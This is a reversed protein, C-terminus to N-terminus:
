DSEAGDAGGLLFTAHRGYGKLDVHGRPTLAFRAPLQDATAGACHVLGPVGSTELRAALNVTTGWVDYQVVRKDLVGAVVPGSHLGVRVKLPMGAPTQVRAAAGIIDLALDAAASAHDRRSVPVGAVALYGDGMTHIPQVGRERALDDFTAFLDSLMRVLDMPSYEESWRSFGVLDAFLVTVAEHRDALLGRNRRLRSAVADPLLASLLEDSRRREQELDDLLQAKRVSLSVRDALRRFTAVHGAHYANLEMSSFFLFGLAQGDDILPCTLSSKMGEAVILHTSNSQPHQRSYEPLDNLIRPAAMNLVTGLSTRHLPQAFGDLLRISQARTRSWRARVQVPEGELLAVGIRDYPIVADFTAYLHDLVEDLKFGRAVRDTISALVHSERNVRDLVEALQALLTGLTAADLQQSGSRTTWNRENVLAPALVDSVLDAIRMYIDVPEHAYTSTARSSFFLFGAPEGRLFVPCTLSSRIGCSILLRTSKSNPNAALYSQLDNLIRPRGSDLIQALSSGALPASYSHPLVRLDEECAQWGNRVVLGAQEVVALGMMDYPIARRFAAYVFELLAGILDPRARGAAAPAAGRQLEIESVGM